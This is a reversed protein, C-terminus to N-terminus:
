IKTARKKFCEKLLDEVGNKVSKVINTKTISLNKTVVGIVHQTNKVTLVLVYNIKESYRGANIQAALPKANVLGMDLSKMFHVSVPKLVRNQRLYIKVKNVSTELIKYQKRITAPGKSLAEVM